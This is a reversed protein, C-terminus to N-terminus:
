TNTAKEKKKYRLAILRYPQGLRPNIGSSVSNM